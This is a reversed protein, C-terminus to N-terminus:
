LPTGFDKWGREIIEFARLRILEKRKVLHAVGRAACWPLTTQLWDGPIEEVWLNLSDLHAFNPRQLITDIVVFKENSIRLDTNVDINIEKINTSSLQSIFALGCIHPARGLLTLTELHTNFELNIDGPLSERCSATLFILQTVIRHSLTQTGEPKGPACHILLDRLSPRLARLLKGTRPSHSVFAGCGIELSKITPPQSMLWAVLEGEFACGTVRLLRLPPPPVPLRPKYLPERPARSARVNTIALEELAHCAGVMDRVQEFTDLKWLHLELKKLNRFSGLLTVFDEVTIEGGTPPPLYGLLSISELGAFSNLYAFDSRPIPTRMILLCLAIRRVYPLVTLTTSRILDFLSVLCPSDSNHGFNLSKFQLSRSRQLWSWCVLACKALTSDRSLNAESLIECFFINLYLGTRHLWEVTFIGVIPTQGLQAANM